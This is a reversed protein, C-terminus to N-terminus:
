EPGDPGFIGGDTWPAQHRHHMKVMHLRGAGSAVTPAPLAALQETGLNSHSAAFPNPEAYLYSDATRAFAAGSATVALMLAVPIILKKM